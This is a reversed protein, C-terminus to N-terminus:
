TRAATVDVAGEANGMCAPGRVTRGTLAIGVWVGAVIQNGHYMVADYFIVLGHACPQGCLAIHEHRVSVAFDDRVKNVAVIRAAIPQQKGCLGGQGFQHTCVGDAHYQGDPCLTAGFSFSVAQAVFVLLVGLFITRKM